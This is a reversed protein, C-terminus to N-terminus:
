SCGNGHQLLAALLNKGRRPWEGNQHWGHERDGRDGTVHIRRQSLLEASLMDDCPLVHQLICPGWACAPPPRQSALLDGDSEFVHSIGVLVFILGLLEADVLGVVDCSIPDEM